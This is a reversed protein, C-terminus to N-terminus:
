VHLPDEKDLRDLFETLTEDDKMRYVEGRKVQELAEDIQACVQPTLWSEDDEDEIVPTVEFSGRRSNVIVTAGRHALDVFHGQRRRFETATIHVTMDKYNM